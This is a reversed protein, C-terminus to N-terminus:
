DIAQFEINQLIALGIWSDFAPLSLGSPPQLAALDRAAADRAASTLAGADGVYFSFLDEPYRMAPRWNVFDVAVEGPTAGTVMPPKPYTGLATAFAHYLEDTVPTVGCSLAREFERLRPQDAQLEELIELNPSSSWGLAADTLNASGIFVREDARYYKAHLTPQ